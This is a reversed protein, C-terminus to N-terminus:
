DKRFIISAGWGTIVALLVCLTGYALPTEHAANTIAQEMGTKVVRLKLERQAIFRGSKFLYAHATHVGNPVNAPLRLTAWFLGTRELRVGTADNRYIGSTLKLRRYAEQFDFVNDPVGSFAASKLPLHDVGLGMARLTGASAISNIDRTSAMSYSEPLPTFTIASTNIWIGAVRDKKRVTMYDNPGELTVIIDYQGIALLLQDTNNLAGFLTFDAGRFDSTIPIETTSAGIEINEQLPGQQPAIPIALPPTQALATGAFLPLLLGLIAAVPLRCTM